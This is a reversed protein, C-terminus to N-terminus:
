EGPRHNILEGDDTLTFEVTPPNADGPVFFSHWGCPCRGEILESPLLAFVDDRQFIEDSPYTSRAVRFVKVLRKRIPDTCKPCTASASKVSGIRIYTEAM